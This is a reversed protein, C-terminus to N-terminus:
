KSDERSARAASCHKWGAYFLTETVGAALVPTGNEKCYENWAMRMAESDRNYETDIERAKVIHNKLVNLWSELEGPKPLRNGWLEKRIMAVFDEHTM